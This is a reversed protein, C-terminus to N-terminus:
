QGRSPGYIASTSQGCEYGSSPKKKKFTYGSSPNIIHFATQSHSDYTTPQHIYRDASELTPPTTNLTLAEFQPLNTDTHRPESSGVEDTHEKVRILIHVIHRIVFISCIVILVQLCKTDQMFFTTCIIAFVFHLGLQYLWM